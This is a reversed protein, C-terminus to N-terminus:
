NGIGFVVLRKCNRKGLCDGRNPTIEIEIILDDISFLLFMRMRLFNLLAMIDDSIELEKEPCLM